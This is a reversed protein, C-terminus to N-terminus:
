SRSCSSAAAPSCCSSPPAALRPDSGGGARPRSRRRCGARGLRRRRRDGPAGGPHRPRARGFRGAPRRLAPRLHRRDLRPEAAPDLLGARCARAPRRRLPALPRHQGARDRHRRRRRGAHPPGASALGPRRAGRRAGRRRLLRDLRRCRRPRHLRALPRGGLREGAPREVASRSWRRGNPRGGSSCRRPWSWREPSRTCGRTRRPWSRRRCSRWSRRPGCGPPM